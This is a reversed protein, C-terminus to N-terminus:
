ELYLLPLDAAAVIDARRECISRNIPDLAKGRFALGPAPDLVLGGSPKMGAVVAAL